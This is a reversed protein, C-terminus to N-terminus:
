SPLLYARCGLQEGLHRLLDRLSDGLTGASLRGTLRYHLLVLPVMWRGVRAVNYVRHVVMTGREHPELTHVGSVV